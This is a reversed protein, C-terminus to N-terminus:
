IKGTKWISINNKYADPKVTYLAKKVNEEDLDFDRIIRRLEVMNHEKVVLKKSFIDFPLFFTIKIEGNRQGEDFEKLFSFNRIDSLILAESVVKALFLVGQGGRGIIKYEAKKIKKTKTHM